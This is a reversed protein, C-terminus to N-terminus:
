CDLNEVATKEIGPSVSAVGTTAVVGVAVFLGVGVVGEAGVSVGVNVGEGVCVLLGVADSVLWGPSKVVDVGVAVVGTLGVDVLVEVEVAVAVEVDVKVEADDVGVNVLAGRGVRVGVRTRVAVWRGAAVVATGTTCGVVAIGALLVGAGDSVGVRLRIVGDAVAVNIGKGDIVISNPSGVVAVRVTSLVACGEDVVGGAEGM